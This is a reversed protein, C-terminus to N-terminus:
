ERTKLTVHISAEAPEDGLELGSQDLLSEVLAIGEADLDVAREGIEMRATAVYVQTRGPKERLDTPVEPKREPPAVLAKDIIANARDQWSLVHSFLEAQEETAALFTQAEELASAAEAHGGEALTGIRKLTETQLEDLARRTQDLRAVQAVAADRTVDPGEPQWTLLAKLGDYSDLDERMAQTNLSQAADAVDLRKAEDLNVGATGLIEVLRQRMERLARRTKSAAANVQRWLQDQAAVTLETAQPQVQWTTQVLDKVQAWEHVALRKGRELTLGALGGFEVNAVPQGGRLARYGQGRILYLVLTESLEQTFGFADTLGQMIRDTQVQKGTALEELKSLYRSQPRLTWNQAGQEALELPEGLRRLLGDLDPNRPVSGGGLAAPVLFDELLRTLIRQNLESPFRPHHFYLRDCVADTIRDLAAGLSDVDLSPTIAPDLFTVMADPGKHAESLRSRLTGAKTRKQGVLKTLVDERQTKGYEELYQGPNAELERLKAYEDLDRMDEATFEAPLWFGVPIQPLAARAREIVKLDDARTYVESLDFPYDIFLTLEHGEAILMDNTSLEAVNVFQVRGRRRTGRWVREYNPIEGSVIPKRLCSKMLESFAEVRQRWNVPIRKLVDALQVGSALTIDVTGLAPNAPNANFHVLESRNDLEGLIRAIAQCSGFTTRGHLDQYNLHLVREVIVDNRLTKSLGCLLVTKVVLRAREAQEGAYMEEIIPELREYYTQRVAELEENRSGGTLGERLFVVDFLAAYPILSGISIDPYRRILLEYLLRIAARERSLRASVDILTRILAPHFPYLLCFDEPTLDHLLTARVDEGLEGLTEDMTRQLAKRMGPRVRLVREQVIPALEADALETTEPFRDKHHEMTEFIHQQSTDDPVTDAINRQKAVLVWLPVARDRASNDALAVLDNFEDIYQRGSKGTLYLILEDILYVIGAFGQAKAHRTLKAMGDSFKDPYLHVREAHGPNRYELIKHALDDREEQKGEAMRDCRRTSIGTAEQFQEFVVDGYRETDARFSAIVKDADSFECPPVGLKELRANAANYCAMQLGRQQGLMYVPVVLIPHEALWPGHREHIRQIAPHDKTWVAENNELILGLIAMFHSKGSGFSGHLYHGDGAEHRVCSAVVRDVLREMEDAVTDTIVYDRINEQLIQPDDFDQIQVICRPITPPLDFVDRVTLDTM